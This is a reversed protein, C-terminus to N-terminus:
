FDESMKQAAILDRDLDHVPPIFDFGANLTDIYRKVEKALETPQITSEAGNKRVQRLLEPHIRSQGGIHTIIPYPLGDSIFTKTDWKRIIDSEQRVSAEGFRLPRSTDFVGVTIDTDHITDRSVLEAEAFAHLKQENRAGPEVRSTGVGFSWHELIDKRIREPSRHKNKALLAIEDEMDHLISAIFNAKTGTKGFLLAKSDM